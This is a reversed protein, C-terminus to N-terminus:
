ARQLDPSLFQLFFKDRSIQNNRRNKSSNFEVFVQKELNQPHVRIYISSIDARHIRRRHVALRSNRGVGPPRRQDKEEDCLRRPSYPSNSLLVFEGSKGRLNLDDIYIHNWRVVLNALEGLKEPFISTNGCSKAKWRDIRLFRTSEM